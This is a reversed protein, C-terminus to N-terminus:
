MPNGCQQNRRKNNKKKNHSWGRERILTEWTRRCFLLLLSFFPSGLSLWCCCSCFHSKSRWQPLDYYYGTRILLWTFFFCLIIGSSLFCSLKFWVIMCQTFFNFFFCFVFCNERWFSFCPLFILSLPTTWSCLKCHFHASKIFSCFLRNLLLFFLFPPCIKNVFLLVPRSISTLRYTAGPSYTKLSRIIRLFSIRNFFACIMTRTCRHFVFPLVITAKISSFFLATYQM